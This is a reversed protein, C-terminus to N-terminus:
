SLRGQDRAKLIDAIENPSRTLLERGGKEFFSRLEDVLARTVHGRRARLRRPDDEDAAVTEREVRQDREEAIDRRWLAYSAALVEDPTAGLRRATKATAEDWSRLIRRAEGRAQWGGPRGALANALDLTRVSGTPLAVDGNHELLDALPRRLLECLGAIELLSLARRGTVVQTVRNATWPFGLGRMGDALDQHRMGQEALLERLRGALLADLADM